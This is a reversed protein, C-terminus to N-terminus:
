KKCSEQETSVYTVKEQAGWDAKNEIIIQLEQEVQENWNIKSGLLLNRETYM